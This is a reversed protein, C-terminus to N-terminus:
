RDEKPIWYRFRGTIHMRPSDSRCSKYRCDQAYLSLDATWTSDDKQDFRVTSSDAFITAKETNGAIFWSYQGQVPANYGLVPKNVMLSLQDGQDSEELRTKILLYHHSNRIFPVEVDDPGLEITYKKGDNISYNIYGGGKVEWSDNIGSCALLGLSMAVIPTANRLLM